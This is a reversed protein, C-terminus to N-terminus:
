KELLYLSCAGMTLPTWKAKSFGNKLCIDTFDKGNPFAKVSNPLYEYASKDKAFARGIMPVVGKFYLEFMQKAPFREPYAPELVVAAKGPALVRAMERLGADLNEFNRVGFGVTIADFSGDEFPLQESDGARMEILADLSLKKMKRRGVELMGESIDVGVIKKPKLAKAEIAFDGTGTAIDLVTEPKYPRLMQVAKKRWRIDIGLTLMHNFADYGESIADFMEAVQAKKGREPDDYPTVPKAATKNM